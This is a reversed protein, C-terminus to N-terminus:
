LLIKLLIQYKHNILITKMNQSVHGFEPLFVYNDRKLLYGLSKYSFILLAFIYHLICFRFNYSESSLFFFPNHLHSQLLSCQISKEFDM